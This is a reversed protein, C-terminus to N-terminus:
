SLNKLVCILIYNSNFRIILIYLQNLILYFIISSKVSNVGILVKSTGEDNIVDSFVASRLLIILFLNKLM